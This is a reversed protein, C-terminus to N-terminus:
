NAQLRGHCAMVYVYLAMGYWSEIDALVTPAQVVAVMGTQTPVWCDRLGLIM